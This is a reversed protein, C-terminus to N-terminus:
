DRGGEKNPTVGFLHRAFRRVKSVTFNRYSESFRLLSNWGDSSPDFGSREPADLMERSRTFINIYARYRM